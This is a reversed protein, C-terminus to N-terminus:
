GTQSRKLKGAEREITKRDNGHQRILDRVQGITIDFELAMDRVEYHDCISMRHRDQRGTKSKDDAM